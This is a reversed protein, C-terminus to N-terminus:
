DVTLRQMEADRLGNEVAISFVLEYVPGRERAKVRILSVKLEDLMVPSDRAM